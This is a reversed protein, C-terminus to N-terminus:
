FFWVIAAYVLCFLLLYVTARAHARYHHSFDQYDARTTGPMIVFKPTIKNVILWDLIVLDGLTGAAVLALVNLLATWFPIEGGLDAKLAYTSYLPFGFTFLMWPVAIIIALRREEKTQPPVKAKIADSYDSYGWVRPSTSVMVLLLYGNVLAAFLICHTLIHTWAANM